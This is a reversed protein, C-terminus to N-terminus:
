TQCNNLSSGKGSIGFKGWNWKSEIGICSFIASVNTWQMTQRFCWSIYRTRMGIEDTSKGRFKTPAFNPMRIDFSLSTRRGIWNRDSIIAFYKCFEYRKSQLSIASKNTKFSDIRNLNGSTWWTWELHWASSAVDDSTQSKISSATCRM